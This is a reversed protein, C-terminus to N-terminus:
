SGPWKSPSQPGTERKRFLVGTHLSLHILTEQVRSQSIILEELLLPLHGFLPITVLYPTFCGLLFPPLGFAWRLGGRPLSCLPWKCLLLM